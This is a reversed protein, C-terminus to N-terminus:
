PCDKQVKDLAQSIGSLSYTDTTVNGKASAAKVTLKAGKKLAEVFQPEEAASKIWANAGKPALAFTTGGIEAKPDSGDKIAFGMIISVEGRVKEGPRYSIFVYAPDRKLRAPAREKPTALAYCTKDKGSMATFAAWDGFTGVQQPKGAKKSDDSKEDKAGHKKSAEAVVIRANKPAAARADQPAALAGAGALAFSLFAAGAAIRLTM